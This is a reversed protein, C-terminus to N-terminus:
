PVSWTAATEDTYAGTQRGGHLQHWRVIVRVQALKAAGPNRRAYAEDVSRLLEPHARIGPLQGEIEARRIGTNQENLVVVTGDALVGEFRTDAVPSDLKDATSYMRFPGFPFLDDQGWLTGYLLLGVVAVTVAVRIRLGSASLTEM